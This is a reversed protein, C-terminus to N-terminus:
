VAKKLVSIPKLLRGMKVEGLESTFKNDQWAIQGNILVLPVVGDSRNVLQDHQYAERYVRQVSEEGDYSSLKNPDVLILDAVDGEDITGGEVGFVDAADKTLRKVM